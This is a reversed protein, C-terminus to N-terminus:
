SIKYYQLIDNLRLRQFPMPAHRLDELVVLAMSTKTFLVFKVDRDRNCLTIM